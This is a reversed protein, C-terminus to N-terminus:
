ALWRKLPRLRRTTRHLALIQLALWEQDFDTQIGGLDRGPLLVREIQRSDPVDLRDPEMGRYREEDPLVARSLGRQEFRNSGTHPEIRLAARSVKSKGGAHGM